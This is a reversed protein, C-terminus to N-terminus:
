WNNITNDMWDLKGEYAEKMRKVANDFTMTEDGNPFYGIVDETIPWMAHNMSESMRIREAESQIYDPIERFGSELLNWREKVRKKFETDQFLRDYYICKLGDSRDLVVFKNQPIYTGWDFDWVPGMTLRGGTNKHMYSSKPHKPEENGTLEHVLWWDIFSDVDLYQTYERAAFRSDDNLSAEMNNVYDQLFSFQAYNVEDPDKFMYPLYYYSSRFRNVEDFYSDLEMIYGSDTVDDELEDINVRNKDVKIHECLYYNGVHKGNLVLEVFEGHPTWALGTKMAVAFSIRNRMITRDMWNALLVWRKHKPMGLIEAKSDLKIVYPKKPYSWTSNGRGRINDEKGTYDITWDTNYLTLETGELWDEHKSPIGKGGPTNIFLVPLGSYTVEVKYEKETGDAATVKYTVPSSFDNETEGSVQEIGNVTVKAGNSRFTMKLNPSSIFPSSIIFKGSKMDLDLDEYVAEPNDKKLISMALLSTGSFRVPFTESCLVTTGNVPDDYKLNLRVKDNYTTNMGIDKVTVRYIGRSKDAQEIAELKYYTRSLSGNDEREVTELSVQCGASGVDHNFKVDAPIVTFTFEDTGNKGLLLGDTEVTLSEPMVPEKEICSVLIAAAISCILSLKKM